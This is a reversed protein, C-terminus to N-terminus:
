RETGGVEGARRWDGTSFWRMFRTLVLPVMAQPTKSYRFVEVTVTVLLAAVSVTWSMGTAFGLRVLMGAMANDQVSMTAMSSVLSGVSAVIFRFAFVEDNNFERHEFGRQGNARRRKIATSLPRAIHAATATCLQGFMVSQATGTAVNSLFEPLFLDMNMIGAMAVGSSVLAQWGLDNVYDLFSEAAAMGTKSVFFVGISAGRLVFDRLLRARSATFGGGSLMEIGEMLANAELAKARKLVRGHVGAAVLKQHLTGPAM